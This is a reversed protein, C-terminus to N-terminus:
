RLPPLKPTHTSSHSLSNESQIKYIDAKFVCV